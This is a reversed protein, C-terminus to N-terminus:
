AATVLDLGGGGDYDFIGVRNERGAEGPLQVGEFPTTTALGYSM